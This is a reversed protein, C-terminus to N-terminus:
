ENSISYASPSEGIQEKFCKAFYKPDRFGVKYAVESVNLGSSTLLQAARKIRITKVFNNPTQGVLSKLKTFLLARSVALESSFQDVNFDYDEINDEILKMAKQLFVEDPSSVEIEAPDFNMSKSFKQKIQNRLKILNKVKLQLEDPDFPKTVYDDAGMKLGEMKFMFAARATLLIVPIHSIEINNKLRSCMEVGDMEPMMVDSVILDPQLLKAKALGEVGNNATEVRYHAQFIYEVYKQIEDNDEVVLILPKNGKSMKSNAEEQGGVGDLLISQLLSDDIKIRSSPDYPKTQNLNDVEVKNVNLFSTNLLPISLTFTTGQGYISDVNITGHHLEVMQKSIALGIGSGKITSTQPYSKEYFRKFIQEKYDQMIGIGTDIVKIKLFENTTSVSLSVKGYEKTFKLANSLLNIIVKEIKDEDYNALITEESSTFTLEIHKLRASEKFSLYIEHLLLVINGNSIYLPEHDSAMKRFTLIQNVLNLMRNANREIQLLRNELDFNLSKENLISKLPGLILTLPTRFEHTINTFFTLKMEHIEEERAAAAMQLKLNNRLRLFRYFSYLVLLLGFTYFTYAWWTRWFPPKVVIKITRENENWLGDSNAARLRLTYTGANQITYLAEPNGKSTIWERDLGELKYSYQNNSSSLYDLAAFEISFNAEKYNFELEKTFNISQKLFENKRNPSVDKNNVKLNTFVVPPIFKNPKIDKPFFEVFGNIGGFYFSGDKAKFYANFNFEVNELGNSNNYSNVKKTVLNYKTLGNNTSVWLNNDDDELIGYISNSLLGQEEGIHNIELTALNIKYLGNNITGVWLNNHNDEMLSYIRENMLYKEFGTPLNNVLTIVRNLGSETGVWITEDSTKYIVRALNSSISNPDSSDFKFNNFTQTQLNMLSLGGGHTACWLYDGKKYIGYVNNFALSNEKLPDNLYRVFKKTKIDFKNLGKTFTGIWLIDGDLLIQKVNNGSLSSPDNVNYKYPTFKGSTKDFYNLGGGETGIWLNGLIDEAFSSVVNSSISNLYPSHFYNNFQNYGDDFHVVGGYYTGLWMSSKSDKFIAKISNDPFKHLDNDKDRYITFQDTQVNLISLGDFTGIWFNGKDDFATARISNNSLSNLNDKEYIYLKGQNTKRDWFYIGKNGSGIWLNDNQDVSITKINDKLLGIDPIGENEFKDSKENYTLLGIDTGIWIKGKSDQTIHDVAIDTLLDSRESSIRYNKFNNTKPLYRSLGVATGIWLRRKQDQYLARIGNADISTKDNESYFYNRFKETRTNYRSLGDLTGIWIDDSYKDPLIIRIDNTLISSSDSKKKFVKMKHGDYRNLGDRTGFWMMGTKDQAIAFVSVQSLGENKGIIKFTSSRQSFSISPFCIAFSFAICVNLIMRTKVM